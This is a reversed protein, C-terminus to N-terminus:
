SRRRLSLLLLSLPFYDSHTTTSYYRFKALPSEDALEDTGFLRFGPRTLGLLRLSATILMQFGVWPRYTAKAEGGVVWGRIFDVSAFHSM